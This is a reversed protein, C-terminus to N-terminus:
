FRDPFDTIIGDVKWEKYKKIRKSSNVTWVLVKYNYKRAWKLLRKSFNLYPVDIGDINCKDMIRKLRMPKRKFLYYTEVRPEIFKVKALIRSNFSSVIVNKLLKRKKLEEVVLEEMGKEKIEIDLLVKKGLFDLVESFTPVREKDKVKLKKVEKLTLDKLKKKVGCMRKLSRDHFVVIEKDKTFRLDFEVMDCGLELAKAFSSLTNELVYGKAGRHGINLVM